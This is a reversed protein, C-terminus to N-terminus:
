KVQVNIINPVLGVLINAAVASLVWGIAESVGDDGKSSIIKKMVHLLWFLLGINVLVYALAQWPAIFSAKEKMSMQFDPDAAVRYINSFILLLFIAIRKTM